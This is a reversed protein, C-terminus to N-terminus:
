RNVPRTYTKKVATDKVKMPKEKLKDMEDSEFMGPHEALIKKALEVDILSYSDPKRFIGYGHRRPSRLWHVRVKM